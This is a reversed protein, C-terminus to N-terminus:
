PNRFRPRAGISAGANTRAYTLHLAAPGANAGDSRSGGRFPLREGELNAYLHGGLATAESPVILARKLIEPAASSDISAWARSTPMDFGSDEWAAEDHNGNDPACFIRGDIMKFGAQWEWLNGVLDAIGAPTGDHRWSLPGSGTLTQGAATSTSDGPAGGDARVGTEWRSNHHRGYNTNGTMDYGNAKSWLIVAAWDWCSMMDFGVGCARIRALSNTYNISWQPTARPQSVGEGAVTSMLYMGVLIEPVAVGNRIFAEHTGTGLEGGSAVDECNFRPIVRFYSPQGKNTYIVTCLGGTAAEVARRHMDPIHIDIGNLRNTLATDAQQRAQTESALAADLGSLSQGQQQRAQDLETFNQNSKDFATRVTDGGQGTPQTGLEIKQIAM